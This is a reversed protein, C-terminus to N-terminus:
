ELRIPKEITMLVSDLVWNHWNIHVYAIGIIYDGYDFFWPSVIGKIKGHNINLMDCYDPSYSMQSSRNFPM